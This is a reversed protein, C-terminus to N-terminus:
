PVKRLTQGEQARATVIHIQNKGTRGYLVMRNQDAVILNKGQEPM